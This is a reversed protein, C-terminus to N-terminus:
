YQGGNMLALAAAVTTEEETLDLEQARKIIKWVSHFSEVKHDTYTVMDEVSFINNPDQPAFMLKSDTNYWSSFMFVARDLVSAALCVM